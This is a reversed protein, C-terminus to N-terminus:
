SKSEYHIRKFNENDFYFVSVSKVKNDPEYSQVMELVGVLTKIRNNFFTSTRQEGNLYNIVVHNITM